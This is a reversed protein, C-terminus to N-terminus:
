LNLSKLKEYVLFFIINWPGMRAFSPVFGKFLAKVGETKVTQLGCQWASSYLKAGRQETESALIGELLKRSKRQVMLRTRVVDVPNSAAAASFGAVLSALLHCPAGEQVLSWGSSNLRLKVWDYVPLQVGAVLAARQATPCVGRWLGPVGEKRWIDLATALLGASSPSLGTRSQMRVKMVDMPNAVASSVSGAFMACCLNVLSSEKLKNKRLRRMVVDKSSYYLGFKITGYTAQRVLAPSLGKYVTRLGEERAIALVTQLTGRYKTTKWQNDCVQGQLQLRTKATDLPFTIMEACMAALGGFIYPRLDFLQKQSALSSVPGSYERCVHGGCGAPGSQPGVDEEVHLRM